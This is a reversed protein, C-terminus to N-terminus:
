FHSKVQLFQFQPDVRLFLRQLRSVLADFLQQFHQLVLADTLKQSKAVGVV